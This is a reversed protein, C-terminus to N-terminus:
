NDNILFLEMKECGQHDKLGFEFIVEQSSGVEVLGKVLMSRLQIPVLGVGGDSVQDLYQTGPVTDM